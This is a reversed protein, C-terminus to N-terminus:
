GDNKSKVDLNLDVFKQCTANARYTTRSGGYPASTVPFVLGANGLAQLSEQDILDRDPQSNISDVFRRVTDIEMSPLREIAYSLRRLMLRDIEKRAFAAFADGAMAAKRRGELRDLLEVLHEGVSETYAPDDELRRIMDIRDEQPISGLRRLFSEIKQMLLMDRVSAVLNAAAVLGKAFPLQAFIDKSVIAEIASQGIEAALDNLTALADRERQNSKDSTV